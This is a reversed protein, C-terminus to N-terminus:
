LANNLYSLLDVIYDYDQKDINRRMLEELASYVYPNDSNYIAVLVNRIMNRRSVRNIASSKTLCRYGELIKQLFNVLDPTVFDRQLELKSDIKEDVLPTKNYPCVDQCVDCGYIRNEMLPILNEPLSNRNEITQYSICRETLLQYDGTLANTPCSEVCRKCNGCLDDPISSAKLEKDILVIGIFFYSGINQNILLTNKGIWGLGALHGWLKEQIISSDSFYPYNINSKLLEKIRESLKKLKRKLVYHYDTVCAYSAIQGKTRDSSNYSINGYRYRLACVIVSKLEPYFSKIDLLKSKNKVIYELPYSESIAEEIRQIFQSNGYFSEPSAFGCLDFGIETANKRIEASLDM